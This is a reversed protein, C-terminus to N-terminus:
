SSVTKYHYSVPVKRQGDMLHLIAAIPHKYTMRPGSYRMVTKIRERMNPKYCHVPCKVCTTKGEQFPCKELRQRAYDLLFSCERCLGNSSHNGHCYIAIMVTVTNIERKIRSHKNKMTFANYSLPALPRFFRRKLNLYWCAEPIDAGVSIKTGM